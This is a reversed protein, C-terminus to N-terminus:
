EVECKFKHCFGDFAMVCSHNLCYILEDDPYWGAYKCSKCEVESMKLTTVRYITLINDSMLTLKVWNNVQNARMEFSKVQYVSEDGSMTIVTLQM